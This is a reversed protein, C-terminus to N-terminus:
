PRLEERRLPKILYAAIGAAIAREVTEQEYHNTVLVIPVPSQDMIRRAARIGDMEVLGVALFVVDPKTRRVLSLSSEGSSGQGVITFGEENLVRALLTRSPSHDDILLVRSPMPYNRSLHERTM